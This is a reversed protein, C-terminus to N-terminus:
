ICGAPKPIGALRAITRGPAKKFLTYIDKTPVGSGTSIRRINPSVGTDEWETRAFGILKWQGENLEGLGSSAAMAAALERTWQKPDALSGDATFDVGGVTAVAPGPATPTACSVPAEKARKPALAALGGKALRAQVAPRPPEKAPAQAAPRPAGPSRAADAARGLHRLLEVLMAMGRQVEADGSARVMGIVGMPELEDRNRVVDLAEDAIALVEPQTFARVTDLIRIVNDGLLRIDDEGYTTVVRDVLDVTASGARFYGREELSALKTTATGMVEKLIPGMEDIFEGQRRQREVLWEVQSTLADIKSELSPSSETRNEEM